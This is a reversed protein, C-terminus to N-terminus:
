KLMELIRQDVDVVRAELTGGRPPTSIFRQLQATMKRNDAEVAALKIKLDALNRESDASLTRLTGNQTDLQYKLSAANNRSQALDARNDSLQQEVKDKARVLSRNEVQASILFGALVISAIGALGTAFKWLQGSFPNIV